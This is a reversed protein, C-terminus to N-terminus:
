GAAIVGAYRAVAELPSLGATRRSSPPTIGVRGCAGNDSGTRDQPAPQDLLAAWLALMAYNFHSQYTWLCADLDANHQVANTLAALQQEVTAVRRQLAPVRPDSGAPAAGTASAAVLIVLVLGIVLMLKQM